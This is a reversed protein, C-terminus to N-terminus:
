LLYLGCKGYKTGIFDVMLSTSASYNIVTNHELYKLIVMQLINAVSVILACTSPGTCMPLYLRASMKYDNCPLFPNTPPADFQISARCNTFDPRVFSGLVPAPPASCSTGDIQHAPPPVPCQGVSQVSAVPMGMDDCGRRQEDPGHM